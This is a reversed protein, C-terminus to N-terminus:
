RRRTTGPHAPDALEAARDPRGTAGYLAVLAQRARQALPDSAGLSSALGTHAAVLMPEAEDTRGLRRLCDGLQLEAQALLPGGEPLLLRQMELARRLWPEADAPRARGLEIEGRLALQAQRLAHVAELGAADSAAEAQALTAGAADFRGLKIQIGAVKNYAEIVPAAGPGMSQALVRVAERALPLAEAHRGMRDHAGALNGLSIGVEAHEPGFYQRVKALTARYLALAEEHRHPGQDVIANALNELLFATRPHDAGLRREFIPLAERTVAEGQAYQGMRVRLNGLNALLYATRLHEDGYTRRALLLGREFVQAAEAYRSQRMLALAVTRQSEQARPHEDGFLRQNLALSREAWAQATPLDGRFGFFDSLTSMVGARAADADPGLAEAQALADQLVRRAHDYDQGQQWLAKGLAELRLVRDLGEAPAAQLSPPLLEVARDFEGQRTLIEGLVARQRAPEAGDAQDAQLAAALGQEAQERAPPYLGLGQYALAMSRRLAAQL